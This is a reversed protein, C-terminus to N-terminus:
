VDMYHDSTHSISAIKKRKAKVKISLLKRRFLRIQFLRVVKVKPPPLPPSDNAPRSQTSTTMHSSHVGNQLYEPERYQELTEVRYLDRPWNSERRNQKPAEEDAEYDDEEGREDESQEESEEESDEESKYNEQSQSKVGPMRRDSKTSSSPQTTLSDSSVIHQSHKTPQKIVDIKNVVSKRKIANNYRARSLREDIKTRKFNPNGSM